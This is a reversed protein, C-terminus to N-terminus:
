GSNLRNTHLATLLGHTEGPHRRGSGLRDVKLSPKEIVPM